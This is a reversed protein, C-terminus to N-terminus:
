VSITSPGQTHVMGGHGMMLLWTCKYWFCHLTPEFTEACLETDTIMHLIIMTNVNVMM